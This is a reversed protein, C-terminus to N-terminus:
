NKTITYSYYGVPNAPPKLNLTITYNGASPISIDSGNHELTGDAGTDGYNFDWSNNGRFKFAGAILDITITWVDNAQNYTMAHDATWGDGPASGIIAWSYPTASWTMAGLDAQVRYYGAAMSQACNDGGAKLTGSTNSTGGNSNGYGDWAGQRTLFKFGWQNDPMYLYLEYKLGSLNQFLRPATNNNWGNFSGVLFLPDKALYPTVSWNVSESYLTDLKVSPVYAMVRLEIVSLTNPPLNMATFKSNLSAITLQASDNSSTALAMPSAFNNGELDAQLVYQVGVPVGYNVLSWRFLVMNEANDKLLVLSSGASPSTIQPGVFSTKEGIVPGDEKECAPFLFLGLLTATLIILKNKM